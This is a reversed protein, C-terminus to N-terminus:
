LTTLANAYFTITATDLVATTGVARIELTMTAQEAGDDQTSDTVTWTRNSSLALWSGTTGTTLSGSTVTAKVEYGSGATSDSNWTGAYGTGSLTGNSNVSYTVTVSAAVGGASIDANEIGLFTGGGGGSSGTRTITVSLNSSQASNGNVDTVTCRWTASYSTGAICGTRNFASRTNSPKTATTNSDGSRRAWAYTYPSTGGSATATINGTTISDTSGSGSVSSASLTVSVAPTGSTSDTPAGIMPLSCLIGTM